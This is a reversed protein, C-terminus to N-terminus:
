EGPKKRKLSPETKRGQPYCFRDFDSGFISLTMSRGRDEFSCRCPVVKSIKEMREPSGTIRVRGKMSDRSGDADFLGRIFHRMNEDSIKPIQGNHTKNEDVGWDILRQVFSQNAISLQYSEGSQIIRGEIEHETAGLISIKHESGIDDRFRELHKRDVIKLGFQCRGGVKFVSGDGYIFGLWYSEEKNLPPEFYEEDIKKSNTNHISLGCDEKIADWGHNDKIWTISPRLGLEQYERATPSKNLITSAKTVSEIADNKSYWSSM